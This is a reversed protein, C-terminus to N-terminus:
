KNHTSLRPILKRGFVKTFAKLHNNVGWLELECPYESSIELIVETDSCTHFIAKKVVGSHSRDLSEALKLITSHVKLTEMTEENLELFDRYKYSPTLKRHFFAGAAISLIEQRSFGPLGANKIFYFSNEHHNEYSLLMGIDHLMASYGILERKDDGHSHLGAHAASDFLEMTLKLVRMSHLENFGCNRGLGLVSKARLNTKGAQTGTENEIYDVLLGDRLERKSVQIEDIDLERMITELIIAGPIIIDARGPNLGPVNMREKLTFSCLMKIVHKIDKLCLIDENQKGSYGNLKLALQLLNQITGSSGYAKAPKLKKIERASTRSLDLVHERIKDSQKLSVKGSRGSQNLMLLRIAGLKLSELYVPNVNDGVVLETSGGGIDIFLSNGEIKYGRSVGLYILRAEEEGSAIRVNIGSEEKIRDIIYKSNEADRLASTAVAITDEVGFSQAMAAFNRCVSVAREIADPKIIGNDFEGDGLRITEKQRTLVAFSRDPNIRAIMMRISNTGIDMFAVNQSNKLMVPQKNLSSHPCPPISYFPSSAWLRNPISNFRPM